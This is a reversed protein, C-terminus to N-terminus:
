APLTGHLLIGEALARATAGQPDAAQEPTVPLVDVGRDLGDFLSRDLTDPGIVLLDIDSFGDFDNRAVSGFLVVARVGPPPNRRLRGQLTDIIRARLRSRAAVVKNM